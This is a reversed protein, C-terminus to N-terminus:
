ASGAIMGRGDSGGHWEWAAAQPAGFCIATPLAKKEKETYEEPMSSNM